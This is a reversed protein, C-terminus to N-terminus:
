SGSYCKLFLETEGKIRSRIDSIGGEGVGSTLWLTKIKESYAGPKPDEYKGVEITISYQYRKDGTKTSYVSVNFVPKGSTKQWEEEGLLRIGGKELMTSLEKLLAERTLGEKELEPMLTGIVVRFEKMGRMEDGYILNAVGMKVQAPVDFRVALFAALVLLM